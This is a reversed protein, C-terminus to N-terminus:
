IIWVNSRICIEVDEISLHYAYQQWRGHKAKLLMLTDDLKRRPSRLLALISSNHPMKSCCGLFLNSDGVDDFVGRIQPGVSDM